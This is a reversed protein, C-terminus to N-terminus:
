VLDIGAITEPPPAIVKSTSRSARWPAEREFDVLHTLLDIGGVGDTVSHHVKLVVAAADHELGEFVTCEWLPRARDFSAQAIPAVADLLQRVTGPAALRFRRLHFDLDFNPEHAWRPPG